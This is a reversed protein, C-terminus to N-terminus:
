QTFTLSVFAANTILNINQFYEVPRNPNQYVVKRDFYMKCQLKLDRVFKKMRKDQYLLILFDLGVFCEPTLVRLNYTRAPSRSRQAVYSGTRVLLKSRREKDHKSPRTELSCVNKKLRVTNLLLYFNMM